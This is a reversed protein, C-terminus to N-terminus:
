SPPAAGVARHFAAWRTRYQGEFAGSRCAAEVRERPRVRYPYAVRRADGLVGVRERPRVRYPYAVRRADGLVGHQHCGSGAANQRNVDAARAGTLVPDM